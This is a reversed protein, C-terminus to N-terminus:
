EDQKAQQPQEKSKSKKTFLNMLRSQFGPAKSTQKAAVETPPATKAAAPAASAKSEEKACPSSKKNEKKKTAFLKSM